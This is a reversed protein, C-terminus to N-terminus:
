LNDLDESTKQGDINKKIFSSIQISCQDGQLKLLEGCDQFGRIELLNIILYQFYILNIIKSIAKSKIRHEQIL